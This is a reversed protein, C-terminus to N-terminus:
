VVSLGFSSHGRPFFGGSVMNATWPWPVTTSFYQKLTLQCAPCVGSFVLFENNCSGFITEQTWDCSVHHCFGFFFFFIQPLHCIEVGEGRGGGGVLLISRARARGRRGSQRQEPLHWTRVRCIRVEGKFPRLPPVINLQLPQLSGLSSKSFRPLSCSPLHAM